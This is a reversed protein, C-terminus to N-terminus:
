FLELSHTCTDTHTCHVYMSHVLKKISSQKITYLKCECSMMVIVIHSVLFYVTATSIINNKEKLLISDIQKLPFIHSFVDNLM